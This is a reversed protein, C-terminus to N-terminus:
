LSVSMLSNLRLSPKPPIAGIATASEVEEMEGDEDGIGIKVTTQYIPETVSSRVNVGPAVIDLLTGFQSFTARNLNEEVAGVSLVSPFAAPYSVYPKGKNGSAAVVIVNADHLAQYVYGDFSIPGALSLNVVDVGESLGWDLAEHIAVDSCGGQIFCVKAMLLSAEPAVGVSNGLITGSVHTGHWGNDYYPYPQEKSPPTFPAEGEGEEPEIIIGEIFSKGKYFRGQFEAHEKKIGSDVVMVKVGKGRSIKWAEETHIATLGWPLEDPTGTVSESAERFLAQNHLGRRGSLPESSHDSVIPFKRPHHDMYPTPQFFTEERVSGVGSCKKLNLVKNDDSEVIFVRLYQLKKFKHGQLAKLSPCVSQSTVEEEQSTTLTQNLSKNFYNFAGQSKMAVIYNKAQATSASLAFALLFGFVIRTLSTVKLRSIM